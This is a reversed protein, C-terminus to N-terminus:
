EGKKNPDNACLWDCLEKCPCIACDCTAPPADDCLADTRAMFLEEIITYIPKPAIIMKTAKSVWGDGSVINYVTTMTETYISGEIITTITAKGSLIGNKLTFNGEIKQYCM